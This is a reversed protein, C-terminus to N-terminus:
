LFWRRKEIRLPPPTERKRKGDNILCKKGTRTAPPAEPKPDHQPFLRSVSKSHKIVPVLGSLAGKGSCPPLPLGVAARVLHCCHRELSVGPSVKQDWIKSTPGPAVAIGVPRKYFIRDDNRLDSGSAMTILFYKFPILKNIYQKHQWIALDLFYDGSAKRKVLAAGEGLRKLWGKNRSGSLGPSVRKKM